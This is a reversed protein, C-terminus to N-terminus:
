RYDNNTGGGHHMKRADPTITGVGEDKTSKADSLKPVQLAHAGHEELALGQVTILQEALSHTNVTVLPHLPLPPCLLCKSLHLM